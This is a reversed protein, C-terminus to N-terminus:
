NEGHAPQQWQEELQWHEILKQWSSLWDGIEAEDLGRGKGVAKVMEIVGDDDFALRERLNCDILGALKWDAARIAQAILEGIRFPSALLDNDPNSGPGPETQM